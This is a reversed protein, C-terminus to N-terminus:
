LTITRFQRKTLIIFHLVFYNWVKLVNGFNSLITMSVYVVHIGRVRIYMVAWEKAQYQCKLWFILPSKNFILVSVSFVIIKMFVYIHIFTLSFRLSLWSHVIWLFQCCQTCLVLVFLVFFLVCYTNSLVIRLDPYLM